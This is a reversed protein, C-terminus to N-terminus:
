KSIFYWPHFKFFFCLIAFSLFVESIKFDFHLYQVQYDKRESPPYGSLGLITNDSCVVIDVYGVPCPM